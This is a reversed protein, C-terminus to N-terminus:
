KKILKKIYLYLKIRRRVLFLYIIIITFITFIMTFKNKVPSIPLGVMLSDRVQFSDYVFIVPQISTYYEVNFRWEGSLSNSPIIISKTLTSKGIPMELFQERTIGIKNGLSDSLYYILITDMDPIDGKNLIIIKAEVENGNSYSIKKVEVIVDYYASISTSTRNCYFEYNKTYGALVDFSIIRETMEFIKLQLQELDLPEYSVINNITYKDRFLKIEKCILTTTLKTEFTPLSRGGGGGISPPSVIIKTIEKLFRFPFIGFYIKYNESSTNTYAIQSIAITSNYNKSAINTGGSDIVILSTNYNESSTQFASTYNIMGFFLLIIIWKKLM